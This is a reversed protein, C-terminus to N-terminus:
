NKPDGDGAMFIGIAGKGSSTSPTPSWRTCGTRRRASSSSRVRRRALPRRGPQGLRRRQGQGAPHRGQHGHRLDHRRRPVLQRHEARRRPRLGPRPGQDHGRDPQGQVPQRRRQLRRLRAGARRGGGQRLRAPEGRAASTGSARSSPSSRTSRPCAARPSSSSWGSCATPSTTSRRRRAATTCGSARRLRGHLHLHLDGGPKIEVMQDNMATQSAHFDISHSM